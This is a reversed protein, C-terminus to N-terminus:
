GEIIKSAADGVAGSIGAMSFKTRPVSNERSQRRADINTYDIGVNTRLSDMEAESRSANRGELARKEMIVENVSTGQVGNEVASTYALAEASRGELVMDLGAQILSRQDEIYKQTTSSNENTAAMRSAMSNKASANNQESVRASEKMVAAGVKGIQMLAPNCM